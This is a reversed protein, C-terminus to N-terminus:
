GMKLCATGSLWKNPVIRYYLDQQYRILEERLAMERDHVCSEMTQWMRNIDKVLKGEPAVYPKQLNAKRSTQITFLHAEINVRETYRISAHVWLSHSVLLVLVVLNFTIDLPLRKTTQKGTGSLIWLDHFILGM